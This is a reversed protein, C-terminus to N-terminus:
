TPCAMPRRAPLSTAKSWYTPDYFREVPDYPPDYLGMEARLAAVRALGPPDIAAHRIVRALNAAAREPTFGDRRCIMEIAADRNAPDLVWDSGRAYARIFRVLLDEHERAWQRRTWGSCVPYEPIHESADALQKCGSAM